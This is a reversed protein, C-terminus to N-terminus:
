IAVYVRVKPKHVRVGFCFAFLATAWSALTAVGLLLTMEDAALGLGYLENHLENWHARMWACNGGYSCDTLKLHQLTSTYFHMAPEFPYQLAALASSNAQLADLRPRAADAVAAVADMYVLLRSKAVHLQACWTWQNVLYQNQLVSQNYTLTSWNRDYLSEMLRVDSQNFEGDGNPDATFNTIRPDPSGSYPSPVSLNGFLLVGLFRHALTVFSEDWGFLSTIRDPDSSNFQTALAALEPFLFLETMNYQPPPAMGTDPTPLPPVKVLDACQLIPLLSRNAIWSQDHLLNTVDWETSVNPFLLSMNSELRDLYALGDRACFSVTWLIGTMACAVLTAVQALYSAAKGAGGKRRWAGLFTAAIAVLAAVTALGYMVVLGPQVLWSLQSTLTELMQAQHETVARVDVLTTNLSLSLTHLTPLLPLNAFEILNAHSAYLIWHVREVGRYWDLEINHLRRGLAGAALCYVYTDLLGACQDCAFCGTAGGVSMISSSTRYITMNACSPSGYEAAVPFEYALGTLPTVAATFIAPMDTVNKSTYLAMQDRITAQLQPLLTGDIGALAIQLPKNMASFFDLMSAPVATSVLFTVNASHQALHTYKAYSQGLSGVTVLVAGLMCVGAVVKEFLSYPRRRCHCRNVICNVLAALVFLIFIAAAGLVGLIVLLFADARYAALATDMTPTPTTPLFTQTIPHLISLNHLLPRIDPYPIAFPSINVTAPYVRKNAGAALDYISLQCYDGKFGWPEVCNCKGTADDESLTCTGGNLCCREDADHNLPFVTGVLTGSRVRRPGPSEGMTPDYPFTLLCQPQPAVKVNPDWLMVRAGTTLYVQDSRVHSSCGGCCAFNESRLPPMVVYAAATAVLPFYRM